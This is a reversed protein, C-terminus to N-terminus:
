FGYGLASYGPVCDGYKMWWLMNDCCAKAGNWQDEEYHEAVGGCNPGSSCSRVCHHTEYDVYWMGSAPEPMDVAVSRACYGLGVGRKVQIERGNVGLCRYGSVCANDGHVVDCVENQGSRQMVPQCIGTHIVGVGVSRKRGNVTYCAYGAECADVGFDIQCVQNSRAYRSLSTCVGRGRTNGDPDYCVLGTDCESAGNFDNALECPGGAKQILAGGSAFCNGKKCDFHISDDKGNKKKRFTVKTDVVKVKKNKKNKKKKTGGREVRTGPGCIAKADFDKTDGYLDKWGRMVNVTNVGDCRRVLEQLDRERISGHDFLVKDCNCHNNKKKNNKGLKRHEHDEHDNDEMMERVVLLRREEFVEASLPELEMTFAVNQIGMVEGTEKSQITGSEADAATDKSLIQTAWSTGFNSLALVLVLCLLGCIVKRFILIDKKMKLQEQVIKYIEQNDLQGDGDRDRAAMAQEVADLVGDGDLDFMAAHADIPGPKSNKLVGKKKNKTTKKKKSTAAKNSNKSSKLAPQQQQQQQQLALASTEFQDGARYLQEQNQPSIAMAVAATTSPELDHSSGTVMNNVGFKFSVRSDRSLTSQTSDQRTISGERERNFDALAHLQPPNFEPAAEEEESEDSDSSSQSQEEQEEVPSPYSNNNAPTPPLSTCDNDSCFLSRDSGSLDLEFNAIQALTNATVPDPNNNKTTTTNNRASM